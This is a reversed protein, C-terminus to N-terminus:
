STFLPRAGPKVKATVQGEAVQVQPRKYFNHLTFVGEVAPSLAAPIMPDSANAWHEEGNVEFKRISTGLTEEVQAATGSFEIVARGKSVHVNQFGHNQLWATVKQIDNDGLGFRQGFQEPTLWQRYRPSSKDQQDELLKQLAREQEPSRKLVLLMRDMRLDLPAAGHDFEPRALPHVNGKMVVLNREDVAQTVRGLINTTQAAARGLPFTLISFLLLVVRRLSSKPLRM